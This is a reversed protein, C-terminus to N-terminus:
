SKISVNAPRTKVRYSRALQESRLTFIDVPPANYLQKIRFFVDIVEM